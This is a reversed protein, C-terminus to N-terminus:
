IPVTYFFKFFRLYIKVKKLNKNELLKFSGGIYRRFNIIVSNYSYIM